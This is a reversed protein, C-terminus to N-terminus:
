FGCSTTQASGLSYSPLAPCNLLEGGSPGKKPRGRTRNGENAQGMLLRAYPTGQTAQRCMAHGSTQNPMREVGVMVRGNDNWASFLELLSGVQLIGM